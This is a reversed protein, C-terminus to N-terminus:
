KWLSNQNDITLVGLKVTRSIPEIKPPKLFESARYNQITDINYIFKILTDIDNGETYYQITDKKPGVNKLSIDELNM